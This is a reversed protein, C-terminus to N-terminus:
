PRFPKPHAAKGTGASTGRSQRRNATASPVSSPNRPSSQSANSAVRPSSQPVVSTRKVYGRNTMSSGSRSGAVTSSLPSSPVNSANSTKPTHQPTGATPSPTLASQSLSLNSLRRTQKAIPQSAPGPSLSLGTSGRPSVSHSPSLSPTGARSPTRKRPTKSYPSPETASLPKFNHGVDSSRTSTNWRPRASSNDFNEKPENSRSPTGPSTQNNPSWSASRISEHASSRTLPTKRPIRSQIASSPLSSVRTESPTAPQPQSPPTTERPKGNSYPAAPGHQSGNRSPTRISSAPSSGRSEATTSLFSRDSSLMSSVSDRLPQATAPKDYTALNSDMNKLDMLTSRWRSQIDTQLRLIEGNVTLRDKVGREVIALVREIAPCYHMKKAEYSEVKKLTAPAHHLQTNSDLAEDLKTISRSVSDIMRTAQKAANRFVLLWRDEGLERRLAEADSELKQWQQELDDRGIKLEQCATPFMASARNQFNALRMPLFDLSARLPQMRAFLGLINSDDQAMGPNSSNLPSLPPFLQAAFAGSGQKTQRASGPAEEVITELEDIDIGAANDLHDAAPESMYRKEEMEFIQRSVKAAEQAIDEFVSNRLEQWEMALEVQKKVTNLTEKVKQWEQAVKELQEVVHKMDESLITFADERLQLREVSDVYVQVLTQFRKIAHDVEGLGERGAAAAWEADDSADLDQLVDSAKRIWSLIQEAADRLAKAAKPSATIGSISDSFSSAEPLKIATLQSIQNSFSTRSLSYISGSRSLNRPRHAYVSTADSRESVMSDRNPTGQEHYPSDKPPPTPPQGPDTPTSTYQLSRASLPPRRDKPAPLDVGRNETPTNRHPTAGAATAPSARGNVSPISDKSDNKSSGSRKHGFPAGKLWNGDTELASSAM